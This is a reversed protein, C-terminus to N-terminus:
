RRSRFLHRHRKDHCFNCLCILNSPNNTGGKSLPIIHHVENGREGCRKGNILAECRGGSRKEVLKRVEWWGDKQTFGNVTSYNERRISAVGHSNRKGTRARRQWM